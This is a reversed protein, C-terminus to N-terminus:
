EDKAKVTLILNCIQAALGIATIVMTVVYVMMTKVGEKVFKGSSSKLEVRKIAFSNVFSSANGDMEKAPSFSILMYTLLFVIFTVALGIAVGKLTYMVKYKEKFNDAVMACIASGFSLLIAIMLWLSQTNIVIDALLIYLLGALFVVGVGIYFTINKILTRNM